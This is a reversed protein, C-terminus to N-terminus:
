EQKGTEIGLSFAPLRFPTFLPGPAPRLLQLSLLPSPSAMFDPSPTLMTAETRQQRHQNRNQANPSDMVIRPRSFRNVTALAVTIM